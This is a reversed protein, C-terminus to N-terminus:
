SIRFTSSRGKSIHSFLNTSSIMFETGVCFIRIINGCSYLLLVNHLLSLSTPELSETQSVLEKTRKLEYIRVYRIM